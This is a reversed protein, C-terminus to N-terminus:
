SVRKKCIIYNSLGIPKLHIKEIFSTILFDLILINKYLITILKGKSWKSISTSQSKPKFILESIKLIFRPLLLSTFFYGKQITQLGSKLTVFELSKNTYRRFHGLLYDHHTFLSQFAPVTILIKSISNFQKLQEIQVLFNVDNKVHEIVDLILVFSIESEVQLTAENLNNFVMININEYKKSYHLLQKKTFATDICYFHSNPIREILQEAVFTDGCGIDLFIVTNNPELYKKVKKYIFELRAQEWPHRSNRKDKKQETLEMLDM